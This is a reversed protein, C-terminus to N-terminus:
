FTGGGGSGETGSSSESTHSNSTVTIEFTDELTKGDYPSKWQVPIEAGGGSGGVQVGAARIAAEFLSEGEGVVILPAVGGIWETPQAELGGGPGAQYWDVGGFTGAFAGLCTGHYRGDDWKHIADPALPAITYVLNPYYNGQLFIRVAICPGDNVKTWNRTGSGWQTRYSALLTNANEAVFSSNASWHVDGSVYQGREGQEPAVEVPFILEGMPIHGNPYRSDTFTSGDKKKLGVIIGNYIITDGENYETDDPPKTIEIASPIKTRVINGNEDVGVVEENGTEPDTGVVASGPGGPAIGSGPVSPSGTNPKGSSDASGSGGPVNVTVVKFGYYGDASAPYTGNKSIHKTTLRVEDKPVFPQMGGGVKPADVEDVTFQRAVGGEAISINKSM